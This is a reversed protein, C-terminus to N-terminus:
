RQVYTKQLEDLQAGYHLIRNAPKMDTDVCTARVVCAYGERSSMGVTTGLPKMVIFRQSVLDEREVTENWTATHALTLVRDMHEVCREISTEDCPFEVLGELVLELYESRSLMELAREGVRDGM